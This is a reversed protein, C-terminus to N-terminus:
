CRILLKTAMKKNSARDEVINQGSISTGTPITTPCPRSTRIPLLSPSPSLSCVIIRLGVAALDSLYM